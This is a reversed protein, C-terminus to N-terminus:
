QCARGKSSESAATALASESLALEYIRASPLSRTEDERERKVEVSFQRRQEGLSFKHQHPAVRVTFRQLPASEKRSESKKDSSKRSDSHQSGIESVKKVVADSEYKVTIVNDAHASGGIPSIKRGNKTM